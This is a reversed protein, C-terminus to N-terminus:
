KTKYIVDVTFACINGDQMITELAELIKKKSLSGTLSLSILNTTSSEKEEMITEMVEKMNEAKVAAPKRREKAVNEVPSEVVPIFEAIPIPVSSSTSPEISPLFETIRDEKVKANCNHRIEERIRELRRRKKLERYEETNYRLYNKKNLDHLADTIIVTLKAETVNSPQKYTWVYTTGERSQEEMKIMSLEEMVTFITPVVSRALSFESKSIPKKEMASKKIEQIADHYKQIDIKKSVAGM